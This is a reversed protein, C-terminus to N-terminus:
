EFEPVYLKGQWTNTDKDFFIFDNLRRQALLKAAQKVEVDMGGANLMEMVARAAPSDTRTEDTWTASAPPMLELSLGDYKTKRRPPVYAPKAGAPDARLWCIGPKEAHKLLTSRPCGARDSRKAHEFAFLNDNEDVRLLTSTARAWNTIDSSGIGLYALDHGKYKGDETKPPKGTHHVVVLGCNADEIVPQIQNRLFRSTDQMRSIEGGIYSLLPDVWVIDPKHIRCLHAVFKAFEGGTYRSCHVARFHDKLMRREADTIGLGECIGAAVEHMDGANNEAQIMLNRMPRKASLGFVHRGVAFSVAAQVAFVSKGVGSQAVILWVGQRCLFREGVLSDEDPKLMLDEFTRVDAQFESEQQEALWADWGEAGCPGSIMYQPKGARTPGPMRSLRSSNRCKVDPKFGAAELKQFLADVREKYLAKDTGAEIRVVAHVSKGGSHVVASCPLRLSRIVAIQRGIEQEDGEVLVHDLRTVNANGAGEGDMPNIRAWVGAEPDWDGLVMRLLEEGAHGKKEYRALEHEIDDRTRTVGVGRPKHRGDEDKFSSVVYNVRDDARFLASLWGRLDAVADGSPPPVDAVYDPEGEGRRGAKPGIEADWALPEDSDVRAAKEIPPERPASRYASALAQMAEREGLPPHCSKAFQLVLGEAEGRGLRADRCQAALKFAGENRSGEGAGEALFREICKPLGRKTM